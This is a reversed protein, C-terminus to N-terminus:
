YESYPKGDLGNGQLDAIFTMTDPIYIWGSTGPCENPVSDMITVTDMNNIPNKPIKSLYPGFCFQNTRTENTTGDIDSIGTLHDKFLDADPTYSADLGPPIDRHQIAFISLQTRINRLDEKLINDRTQETATSFQPIIISALIGLIIVVILIEVLTFGKFHYSAKSRKIIHLHNCKNLNQNSVLM